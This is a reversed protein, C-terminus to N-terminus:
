RLMREVKMKFGQKDALYAKYQKDTVRISIVNSGGRYHNTQFVRIFGNRMVAQRKAGCGCIVFFRGRKADGHTRSNDRKWIHKHEM